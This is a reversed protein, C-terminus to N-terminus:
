KKGERETRKGRELNDEEEWGKRRRLVKRQRNGKREMREGREPFRTKKRGNGEQEEVGKKVKEMGKGETRGKGM